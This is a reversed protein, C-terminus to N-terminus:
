AIAKTFIGIVKFGPTRRAAGLSIMFGGNLLTEDNTNSVTSEEFGM